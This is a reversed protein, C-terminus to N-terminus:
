LHSCEPCECQILLLWSSVEKADPLEASEVAIKQYQLAGFRDIIFVSPFPGGRDEDKHTFKETAKGDTDSLILFPIQAKEAYERTQEPDDFSVALVEAELKQMEEYNQALERLKNDCYRCGVGHHFFIVLNKRQKFDWLSVFGDRNSPLNLYPVVEELKLRPPLTRAPKGPAMDTREGKQAIKVLSFCIHIFASSVSLKYLLRRLYSCPSMNHTAPLPEIANQFIGLYCDSIFVPFLNILYNMLEDTFLGAITTARRIPRFGSLFDM